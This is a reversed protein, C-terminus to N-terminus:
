RPEDPIPSTEKERVLFAKSVDPIHPGPSLFLDGLSTMIKLCMM